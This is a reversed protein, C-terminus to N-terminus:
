IQLKTYSSRSVGDIISLTVTKEGSADEELDEGGGEFVEADVDDHDVEDEHFEEDNMTADDNAAMVQEYMAAFAEAALPLPPKVGQDTPIPRFSGDTGDSNGGSKANLRTSRRRSLASDATSGSSNINTGITLASSSQASEPIPPRSGSAALASAALAALMGSLRSGSSSMVGAVRPRLYDHLAQFTAIAHISVVINHLNKPIDSDEDAVM